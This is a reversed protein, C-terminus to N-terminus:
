ANRHPADPEDADLGEAQSGGSHTVPETGQFGTDGEMGERASRVAGRAGGMGTRIGKNAVDEQTIERNAFDRQVDDTFIDRNAFDRQVVGDGAVEEDAAHRGISATGAPESSGLDATTDTRPEPNGTFAGSSPDDSRLGTDTGFGAVGTSSSAADATPGATGGTGGSATSDARPEPNGTFAGSSPDDSRLGTDTGFGAVGASASAADATPGATGAATDSWGGSGSAGATGGVATAPATLGPDTRETANDPGIPDGVYGAPAGTGSHGTAHTPDVAAPDEVYGTESGRAGPDPRGAPRQPDVAVPDGSHGVGPDDHVSSAAVPGGGSETDLTSHTGGTPGVAVVDGPVDERNGAPAAAGMSAGTAVGTTASASSREVDGDEVRGRWGGTASGRQEIFEKFRDLDAVAQRDVIDLFDAVREVFGEPEYDLTLRVQTTDEGVAKFYVAGANTAGTTAAWAVKEDPLQELIEADWERRVGAIEAVWHTLADGVQRVEQVGGMFRPFEEFQTWQDYVTRVPVAVEISREVHTAV